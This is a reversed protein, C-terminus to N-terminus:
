YVAEESTTAASSTSATENTNSATASVTSATETAAGSTAAATDDIFVFPDSKSAGHVKKGKLAKNAFLRKAQAKKLGFHLRIEERDKGEELMKLVASATVVPKPAEITTSM